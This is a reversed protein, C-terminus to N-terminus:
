DVAQLGCFEIAASAGGLRLGDVGVALREHVWETGDDTFVARLWWAILALVMGGSDLGNLTSSSDFDLIIALEVGEVAEDAAVASPQFSDFGFITFRM